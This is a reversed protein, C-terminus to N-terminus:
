DKMDAVKNGAIILVGGLHILLNRRDDDMVADLEQVLKALEIVAAFPAARWDGPYDLSADQMETYVAFEPRNQASM